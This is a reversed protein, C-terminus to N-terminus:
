GSSSLNLKGKSSTFRSCGHRQPFFFWVPNQTGTSVLYTFSMLTERCELDCCSLRHGSQQHTTSDVGSKPHGLQRCAALQCSVETGDPPQTCRYFRFVPTSGSGRLDPPRSLMLDSLLHLRAGTRTSNSHQNRCKTFRNLALSSALIVDQRDQTPHRHTCLDLCSPSFDPM